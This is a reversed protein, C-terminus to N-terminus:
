RHVPPLTGERPLHREQAEQQVPSLGIKACSVREEVILKSGEPSISNCQLWRPSDFAIGTWQRRVFPPWKLMWGPALFPEPDMMYEVVEGRATPCDYYYRPGQHM